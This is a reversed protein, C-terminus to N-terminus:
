DDKEEKLQKFYEKQERIEDLLTDSLKEIPIQHVLDKVIGFNCGFKTDDSNRKVKDMNGVVRDKVKVTDFMRIAVDNFSITLVKNHKFTDKTWRFFTDNYDSHEFHLSDSNKVKNFHFFLELITTIKSMPIM